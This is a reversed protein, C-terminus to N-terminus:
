RRVPLSRSGCFGLTGRVASVRLGFGYVCFGAKSNQVVSTVDFSTSISGTLIVVVTTPM